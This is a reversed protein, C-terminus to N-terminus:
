YQVFLIGLWAISNYQLQSKLININFLFTTWEGNMFLELFDLKVHNDINGEREEKKM